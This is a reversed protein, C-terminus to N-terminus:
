AGLLERMHDIEAQQSTEISEALDIAPKFVGDSQEEKAMEIAGEHHEIMMELWMDEFEQGQAAELDALDEDTMMTPTDSDGEGEVDEMDHGEMGDPDEANAHDRLTEPVTQDWGTLWDVMTEIEPAQAAQIDETLKQVPASLERGRTVDVMALAQAHHPIMATAFDVDEDNFVDGNAATQEARADKTNTDGGCAALTFLLTGAMLAVTLKKPYHMPTEKDFLRRRACPCHGPVEAALFRTPRSM